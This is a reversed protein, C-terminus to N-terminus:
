GCCYFKLINSPSAVTIAPNSYFYHACMGAGSIEIECSFLLTWIHFLPMLWLRWVWWM